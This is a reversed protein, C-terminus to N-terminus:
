PKWRELSQYYWTHLFGLQKWKGDMVSAWLLRGVRGNGDMFPHLNEFRQHLDFPHLETVAGCIRELAEVVMAGGRPPLHRGVSVDMGGLSRLRAYDGAFMMAADALSEVDIPRGGEAFEKHYEVLSDLHSGDTLTIGEIMWSEKVFDEMTKVM